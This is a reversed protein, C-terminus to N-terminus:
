EKRMNDNFYHEFKLWPSYLVFGPPFIIIKVVKVATFYLSLENQGKGNKPKINARISAATSIPHRNKFL